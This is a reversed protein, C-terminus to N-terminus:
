MTCKRLSLPRRPNDDPLWQLAWSLRSQHPTTSTAQPLGRPAMQVGDNGEDGRAAVVTGGREGEGEARSVGNGSRADGSNRGETGIGM